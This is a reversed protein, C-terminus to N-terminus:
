RQWVPASIPDGLEPRLGEENMRDWLAPMSTTIISNIEDITGPLEERANDITWIQDDTPRTHSRELGFAAFLVRRQGQLSERVEAVAKTAEEAMTKLEDTAAGSAEILEDATELQASLRQVAMNADNYAGAFEYAKMMTQQRLQLDAPSISVRPDLQVSVTSSAVQDGAHLEVTYDGPLVRVGPPPGGFRGRQPPADPDPEYPPEIRTDWLIENLGPRPEVELERM